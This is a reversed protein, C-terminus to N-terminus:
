KGLAKQYDELLQNPNGKLQYDINFQKAIKALAQDESNWDYFDTLHSELELVESYTLDLANSAALKIGKIVATNKTAFIKAIEKARTTIMTHETIIEDVLNAQFSEEASLPEALMFIRKTWSPGCVRTFIAMATGGPFVPINIEPMRIFAKEHILRYDAAAAFLGGMGMARGNIAIVTPKGYFMLTAIDGATNAINVIAQTGLPAAATIDIGTTFDRTGAGTLIIAKITPKSQAELFAQRLAVITPPDLSNARDPRNLTLVLIHEDEQQQLSMTNRGGSIVGM